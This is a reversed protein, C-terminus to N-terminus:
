HLMQIEQGRYEDTSSFIHKHDLNELIPNLSQAPYPHVMLPLPILVMVMSFLHPAIPQMHEKVPPVYM